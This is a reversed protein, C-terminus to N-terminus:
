LHWKIHGAQLLIQLLGSWVSLSMEESVYIIAMVLYRSFKIIDAHGILITYGDNSLHSTVLWVMKSLWYRPTLKFSGWSQFQGADCQLRLKGAIIYWSGPDLILMMTMTWNMCNMYTVNTSDCYKVKDYKCKTHTYFQHKTTTQVDTDKTKGVCKYRQHKARM